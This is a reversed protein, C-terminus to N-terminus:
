DVIGMEALRTVIDAADRIESTKWSAVIRAPRFLDEGDPGTGRCSGEWLTVYMVASARLRAHRSAKNAFTGSVGMRDALAQVADEVGRDLSYGSLGAHAETEDGFCGMSYSYGRALDRRPRANCRLFM